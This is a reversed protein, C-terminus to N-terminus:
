FYNDNQVKNFNFCYQYDHKDHIQHIHKHKMIHFHLKYLVHNHSRLNIM